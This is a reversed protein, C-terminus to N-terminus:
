GAERDRDALSMRQEWAILEKLARTPYDLLASQGFALKQLSHMVYELVNISAVLSTAEGLYFHWYGERRVSRRTHRGPDIRFAYGAFRLVNVEVNAALRVAFYIEEDVEHGSPLLAPRRTAKLYVGTPLWLDWFFPRWPELALWKNRVM